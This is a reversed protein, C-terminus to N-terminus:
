EKADWGDASQDRIQQSPLGVGLQKLFSRQTQTERKSVLKEHTMEATTIANATATKWGQGKESRSPGSVSRDRDPKSAM